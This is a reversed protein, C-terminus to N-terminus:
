KILFNRIKNLIIDREARDTGLFWICLSSVILSEFTTIVVRFSFEEFIDYLFFEISFAFTTVIIIRLLISKFYLTVKLAIEKQAVYLISIAYLLSLLCTVFYPLLPDVNWFKLMCYSLPINLMLISSSILQYKRLRNQAQFAGIIQNVTTEILLSIILLQSIEVTFKPANSLWINLVIKMELIAPICIIMLLFYTWKSSKFVLNWMDQNNGQAYYKTIQPRTALYVNNVLQTIVGAIQQALSHAANLLPGFFLNVIINLGQNRAILALSGIMNWGSYALLRKGLEQNWLLRYSKCENFQRTCYYQYIVRVIISIACIFAAYWILLDGILYPLVLAAVLKLIGDVISVYAFVAMKEHAIIASNYPIALLNIVFSLISLQYVWNAANLREIPIQMKYNLFCIGLLESFILLVIAFGLYITQTSDFVEKLKVEDGSGLSYALFRQSGSALAGGIFSFMTVIGGVVNYIGYDEVGLAKLIIPVTYLQVLILFIMRLYLFLSNVALRRNNNKNSM